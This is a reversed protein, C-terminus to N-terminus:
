ATATRRQPKNAAAAEVLADFLQQMPARDTLDEPHWQVTLVFQRGPMETAEVLGDPAQATVTLNQGVQQVAQHHLSNVDLQRSRIIQALHSSPDIEVSHSIIDRPSGPEFDHKIDTDLLSAIDQVLEGGLAVNVVQHGRCIGFLPVDDRVAWRVIEFEAADRVPDVLITEPHSEAGYRAPDVDGGGPLLVADVQEYLAHLTDPGVNCPILFPLGGAREIAEINLAYSAVYAYGTRPHVQVATTLGIIPKTL